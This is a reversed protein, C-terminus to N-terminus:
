GPAFRTLEVFLTKQEDFVSAKGQGAMTQFEWNLITRRRGRLLGVLEAM